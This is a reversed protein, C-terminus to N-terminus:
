DIYKSTMSELKDVVLKQLIKLLYHLKVHKNTLPNTVLQSEKMSLGARNALQEIGDLHLLFIHGDADPKFQVSEYQSPDPSDSFKPLTNRFYEGNPTTIVIHGDPKL